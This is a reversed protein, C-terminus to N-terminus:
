DKYVQRQISTIQNSFTYEGGLAQGFDKPPNQGMPAGNPNQKLHTGPTQICPTDQIHGAQTTGLPSIWVPQTLVGTLSTEYYTNVQTVIKAKKIRLFMGM